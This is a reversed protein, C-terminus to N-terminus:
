RPAGPPIPPWVEVPAHGASTEDGSVFAPFLAKMLRLGLNHEITDLAQWLGALAATRHDEWCDISAPEGTFFRLKIAADLTARAQETQAVFLRMETHAVSLPTM